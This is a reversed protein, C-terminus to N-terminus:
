RGTAHAFIMVTEAAMRINNWGGGDPQFVVYKQEEPPAKDKLPHRLPSQYCDEKYLVKNWFQVYPYMECKLPFSSKCSQTTADATVSVINRRVEGAAPEIDVIDTKIETVAAIVAPTTIDTVVIQGNFISSFNYLRKQLTSLNIRGALTGEVSGTSGNIAVLSLLSVVIAIFFVSVFAVVKMLKM